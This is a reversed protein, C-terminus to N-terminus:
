GECVEYRLEAMGASVHQVSMLRLSPSLVTRPFLPKGKGLTVSGVQIILEDLLGTAYSRRLVFEEHSALTRPYTPM